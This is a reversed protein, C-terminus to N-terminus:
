LFSNITNIFGEKLSFKPTWGLKEIKDINPCNRSVNSPMYEDHRIITKVKLNYDPFCNVLLLALDKMSTEADKNGVNYAQGNEGELLVMFFAVTADALYCFARKALGNSKLIIDEKKIINSVFDAFVRGDDLQMKPGYTHFPRVIKTPINYQKFWSVCLTEGMRKSEAYCARINTPDIYGFDNESTPIKSDDLEGYVESSSFFLFSNINKVFALKLLEQTGLVNPLLVDVPNTNYYKPSALSAGHIIFDIELHDLILPLSVDQYVFQLDKRELYDKFREDAKEQNRVLAIVTTADSFVHDNLYLITEVMYSLLLGNAGTILITKGQLKQWNVPQSIIFELDSEIIFNRKVKRHNM